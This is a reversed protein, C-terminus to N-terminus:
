GNFNNKNRDESEKKILEMEMKFLKDREDADMQLITDYGQGLRKMLIYAKSTLDYQEGEDEALEKPPFLIGKNASWQTFMPYEKYWLQFVDPCFTM